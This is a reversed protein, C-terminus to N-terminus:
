EPRESGKWIWHDNATNRKFAARLPAKPGGPTRSLPSTMWPYPTRSVPLRDARTIFNTPAASM